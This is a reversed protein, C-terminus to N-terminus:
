MSVACRMLPLTVSSACVTSVVLALCRDCCCCRVSGKEISPRVDNILLAKAFAVLGGSTLQSWGILELTTLHPLTALYSLEGGGVCLLLLLVAIM